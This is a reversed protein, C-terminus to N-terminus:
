KRINALISLKRRLSIFRVTIQGPQHCALYPSGKGIHFLVYLHAVCTFILLLVFAPNMCSETKSISRNSNQAPVLHNSKCVEIIVLM